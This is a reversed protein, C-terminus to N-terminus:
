RDNCVNKIKELENLIEERTMEAVQSKEKVSIDTERQKPLVYALLKEFMIIKDRAELNDFEATVEDFRGEVFSKLREKINHTAKNKSGRPIGNPNGTQGKKQAM